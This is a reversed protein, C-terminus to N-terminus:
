GNNLAESVANLSVPDPRLALAKIAEAQAATMVAPVLADIQARVSPLGVDLEGRELLLWAWKVPSVTARLADLADLVAAGDVPGLCDMVRGVGIYTSEIRTRGVSLAAAIAADNRVAALAQLAPDAAIASLIEANTM